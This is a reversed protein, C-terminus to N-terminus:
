LGSGETGAPHNPRMRVKAVAEVVGHWVAEEDLFGGSSKYTRVSGAQIYRPPLSNLALAYIDEVCYRCRCLALNQGFVSRMAEMVAIENYNVIDRLTQGAVDYDIGDRTILEM